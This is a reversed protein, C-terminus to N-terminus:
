PQLYRVKENAYPQNGITLLISDGGGCIGPPLILWYTGLPANSDVLITSTFIVSINSELSESEPKSLVTIGTHNWQPVLITKMKPPLQGPGGYCSRAGFSDPIVYCADFGQVTTGNELRITKPVVTQEVTVNEQHYFTLDNKLNVKESFQSPHGDKDIKYTITGQHGPYLVYNSIGSFNYVNFGSSNVISSPFKPSDPCPITPIAGPIIRYSIVRLSSYQKNDPHKSEVLAWGQTVLRELSSSKVCAPLNNETNIVLRLREKCVVDEASIGSKFQKLPPLINTITHELHSTTSLDLNTYNNM